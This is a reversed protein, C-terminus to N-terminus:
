GNRRARFADRIKDSMSKSEVSMPMVGGNADGPRAPTGTPAPTYSPLGAARLSREFATQEDDFIAPRSAKIQAVAAVADIEAEPALDPDVFRYLDGALSPEVGQRLGEVALREHSTLLEEPQTDTGRIAANMENSENEAM